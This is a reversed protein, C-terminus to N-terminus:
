SDGSASKGPCSLNLQKLREDESEQDRVYQEVVEGDLGITCVFYGCAWFSEGPFNGKRGMFNRAISIASKGKIYGM